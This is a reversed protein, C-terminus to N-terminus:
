LRGTMLKNVMEMKSNVGLKNYVRFVYTKVTAKSIFLQEGIEDYRKGELLLSMVERERVSISYRQVAADLDLMTEVSRRAMFGRLEDSTFSVAWTLAMLPIVLGTLPLSTALESVILTVLLGLTVIAAVRQRREQSLTHVIGAYIATMIWGVSYVSYAVTWAAVNVFNGYIYAVAALLSLALFGLNLRTRLATRFDGNAFLAFVPIALVLVIEQIEYIWGRRLRSINSIYVDAGQSFLFLVFLALVLMRRLHWAGWERVVSGVVLIAAAFLCAFFSFITCMFVVHSM